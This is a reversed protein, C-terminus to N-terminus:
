QFTLDEPFISLPSSEDQIEKCLLSIEGFLSATKSFIGNKIYQTSENMEFIQDFLPKLLKMIEYLDKLIYKILHIKKNITNDRISM